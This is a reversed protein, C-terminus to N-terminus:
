FEVYCQEPFHHGKVARWDPYNSEVIGRIFHGATHLKAHLLRLEQNIICKVENEVWQRYNQNTYHRIEHEMAKVHHISIQFNNGQLTGQDSPQGGGQPYFITQDLILYHGNEDQGSATILAQTEFLYTDEFYARKTEM